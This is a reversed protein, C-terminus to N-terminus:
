RGKAGLVNGGTCCKLQVTINLKLCSCLLWTCFLWTIACMQLRALSCAGNRRGNTIHPDSSLFIICSCEFWKCLQVKKQTMALKLLVTVSQLSM